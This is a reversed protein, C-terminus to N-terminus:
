VAFYGIGPRVGGAGPSSVCDSLLTVFAGSFITLIFLPFITVGRSPALIPKHVGEVREGTPVVVVYDPDISPDGQQHSLIQASSKDPIREHLVFRSLAAHPPRTELFVM